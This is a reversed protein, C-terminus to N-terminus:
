IKSNLKTIKVNVAENREKLWNIVEATSIFSSEETLASKLFSLNKKINENM